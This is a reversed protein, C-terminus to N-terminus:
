WKIVQGYVAEGDKGGEALYMCFKMWVLMWREACADVAAAGGGNAIATGVGLMRLRYREEQKALAPPTRTPSHKPSSYHSELESNPVHELDPEFKPVTEPDPVFEPTPEPMPMTKKKGQEDQEEKVESEVSKVSKM